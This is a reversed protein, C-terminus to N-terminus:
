HEAIEHMELTELDLEVCHEYQYHPYYDFSAGVMGPRNPTDRNLPMIHVDARYKEGEDLEEPETWLSVSVYIERPDLGGRLADSLCERIAPKAWALFPAWNYRREDLRSPDYVFTMTPLPTSEIDVFFSECKKLVVPQTVHITNM